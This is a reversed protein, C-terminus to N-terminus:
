GPDCPVGASNAASAPADSQRSGGSLESMESVEAMVRDAAGIALAAKQVNAGDPSPPHPNPNGKGTRPVRTDTERAHLKWM